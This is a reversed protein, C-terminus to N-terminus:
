ELVRQAVYRKIQYFGLGLVWVIILVFTLLPAFIAGRIVVFGSVATFIMPVALLPKYPRDLNPERFRLIVAGLVTLFFFSFEGLGNFTVLARFNGFLIYLAPLITLLVLANLPADSESRKTGSASNDDSSESAPTADGQRPKLGLHGVIAFPRPLWDKNAAAVAMRGAVFSNGLLSGAVVLCIFLAAFGGAVPGLLRTIATKLDNYADHDPECVWNPIPCLPTPLLV